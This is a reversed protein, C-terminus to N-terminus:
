AAVALGHEADFRAIAETQLMLAGVSGELLRQGMPRALIDQRAQAEYRARQSQSLAEWAQQLAEQASQTAQQQGQVEAQKRAANARRSQSKQADIHSQPLSWDEEIARRLTGAADRAQRHPLADLQRQCREEGFDRLLRKACDSALGADTLPQLVSNNESFVVVGSETTTIESIIETTTETIALRNRGPKDPTKSFVPKASVSLRAQANQEDLTPTKPSELIYTERMRPQANRAPLDKIDGGIEIIAAYLADVRLRYFLKAPLGRKCEELLGRERLARRATEQERRTLCTEAEWDEQTKYIWGEADHGKDRWYWLQSLFLGNAAGGSIKAFIRHFAVPHALCNAIIGQVKDLPLASPYLTPHIINQPM